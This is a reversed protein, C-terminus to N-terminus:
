SSRSGPRRRAGIMQEIGVAQRARAAVEGEEVPRHLALPAARVRDHAGRQAHGPLLREVPPRLAEGIGADAMAPGDFAVAAADEVELIRFALAEGEDVVATGAVGMAPRSARHGGHM